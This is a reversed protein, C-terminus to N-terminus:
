PEQSGQRSAPGPLAQALAQAQVLLLQQREPPLQEVIKAITLSVESLEPAEAGPSKEKGIEYAFSIHLYDEISKLAEKSPDYKGSRWQSFTTSSIQTASYFTGKQIKREKLIKEVIEVVNQGYM